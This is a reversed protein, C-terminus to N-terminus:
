FINNGIFKWVVVGIILFLLGIIISSLGNNETPKSGYLFEQLEDRTNRIKENDPAIKLCHNFEALAAQYNKVAEQHQSLGAQLNGLSRLAHIIKYVKM